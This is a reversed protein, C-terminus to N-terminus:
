FRGLLRAMPEFVIRGPLSASRTNYAYFLGADTLRGGVLTSAASGNLPFSIRKGDSLRLVVLRHPGRLLALRTSVDVLRLSAAAGLPLSKTAAGNTANYLNLTLATEIALRTKSLAVARASGPAYPVTAVQAGKADRITLGATAGVALRGGGVALLPYAADGRSVVVRRGNVIRVLKQSTLRLFPDKEGCEEDNPKACTLTWSNYALLAGSGLLRGVWDGTPDGGARDGNSAFELQKRADGILGAAMVAMELTNGGGEEIWAVRGGGLALQFIGDGACGLIGPKVRISRKSPAMWVVIRGCGPEVRTTVAARNGDAALITIRGQVSFVADPRAAQGNAAATLSVAVLAVAALAACRILRSKAQNKAM